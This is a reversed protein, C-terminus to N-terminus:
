KAQYKQPYLESIKKERLSSHILENPNFHGIGGELLIQTITKKENTQKNKVFWFAM